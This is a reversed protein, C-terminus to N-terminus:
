FLGHALPHWLGEAHVAVPYSGHVQHGQVGVAVHTFFALHLAGKEIPDSACGQFLRYSCDRCGGWSHGNQRAGDDEACVEGECGEACTGGREGQKMGEVAQFGVPNLLPERELVRQRGQLAVLGDADCGDHSRDSRPTRGDM